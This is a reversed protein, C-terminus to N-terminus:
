ARRRLIVPIGCEDSTLTSFRGLRLHGRQPLRQFPDLRDLRHCEFTEAGLADYEITSGARVFAPVVPLVDREPEVRFEALCLLDGALRQHLSSGRRTM